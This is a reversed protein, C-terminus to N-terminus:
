RGFLALQSSSESAQVTQAAGSGSIYYGVRKLVYSYIEQFTVTGDGDADARLRTATGRIIDWGAGECLARSLVTATGEESNEGTFRLRYSDQDAGSSALLLYRGSGGSLWSREQRGTGFGWNNGPAASKGLFGGSKCCDIILVVTGPVGRLMGGLMSATIRTGDHLELYPGSQDADGHCSIYLLSVDKEQAGAFATEIGLLVDALTSDMQMRVQYGAGDLNQARLMDTVGQATTRAGTRVRGDLYDREGLVLARYVPREPLVSVTFRATLGGATMAEVVTQGPSVGRVLGQGDVSAVSPDASQWRVSRDTANEPVFVLSLQLTEGMRLSPEADGGPAIDTLALPRVRVMVSQSVQGVAFAYVQTVGAGVATIVGDADVTAVTPDASAWTLSRLANEPSLRANLRLTGGMSMVNVSPSLFLHEPEPRGPEPADVALRYVGVNNSFANVRLYYVTGSRLYACIRFNADGPFLLDDDMDVTLGSADLLACQTDLMPEQMAESRIVHWGTVTPMYRYYHTERPHLIARPYSVSEGPLDIPRDICRGHMLQMVEVTVDAAQEPPCTIYFLYTEGSILAQELHVTGTGSVAALPEEEESLRLEVSLPASRSFAYFGYVGDEAPTFRYPFPEESPVCSERSNTFLTVSTVPAPTPEPAATEQASASCGALVFLAALCLLAFCRALWRHTM